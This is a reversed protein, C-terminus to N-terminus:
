RSLPKGLENAIRKIANGWEKLQKAVAGKQLSIWQVGGIERLRAFQDLTIIRRSDVRL